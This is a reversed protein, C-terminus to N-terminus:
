RPLYTGGVRVLYRLYTYMLDSNSWGVWTCFVPRNYTGVLIEDGLTGASRCVNRLGRVDSWKFGRDLEYNRCRTTSTM